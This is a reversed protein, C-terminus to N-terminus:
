TKSSKEKAIQLTKIRETKLNRAKILIANFIFSFIIPKYCYIIGYWQIRFAMVTLTLFLLTCYVNRKIFLYKILLSFLLIYIIPGIFGFALMGESYFLGGGANEMFNNRLFQTYNLPAEVGYFPGPFLGFIMNLLVSLTPGHSNYYEISTLFIYLVDAVTQQAYISSIISASNVSAGGRASAGVLGVVFLSFGGLLLISKKINEEQHYDKNVFLFLLVFTIMSDVRDGKVIVLILLLMHIITLFHYRPKKCMLLAVNASLYITSMDIRLDLGTVRPYSFIITILLLILLIVYSTNSCKYTKYRYKFRRLPYFVGIMIFNIIALLINAEWLTHDSFSESNLMLIGPMPFGYNFALLTVQPFISIIMFIQLIVSKFKLVFYIEALIAIIVWDM